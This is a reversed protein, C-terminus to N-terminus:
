HQKKTSNGKSNCECTFAVDSNGSIRGNFILLSSAHCLNILEHGYNNSFRDRSIRHIRGTGNLTHITIDDRQRAAPYDFPTMNSDQSVTFDTLGGTRANHDGLLLVNGDPPFSAIDSEIISFPEDIAHNSDIPPIYISAVYLDHRFNFFDKKLKCWVIWDRKKFGIDIGKLLTRNLFLYIGGSPRRANKHIKDRPFNCSEFGELSFESFESSWSETLCIFDYQRLLDRHQDLKFNNLGRINWCLFNLSSCENTIIASHLSRPVSTAKPSVEDTNASTACTPVLMVSPMIPPSTIPTVDDSITILRAVPIAPTPILLGPRIIPSSRAFIVDDSLSILPNSSVEDLCVNINM